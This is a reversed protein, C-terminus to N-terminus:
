RTGVSPLLLDAFSFIPSLFERVYSPRLHARCDYCREHRWRWSHISKHARDATSIHAKTLGSFKEATPRLDHGGAATATNHTRALPYSGGGGGGGTKIQIPRRLRPM